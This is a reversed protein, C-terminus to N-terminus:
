NGTLVLNLKSSLEMMRPLQGPIYIKFRSGIGEASELRIEGNLKETASKVIYLGLGTGRSDIHARFFMEFVKDHVDQPMGIGNDEAIISVGEKENSIKIHLYNEAKNTDRYKIANDM